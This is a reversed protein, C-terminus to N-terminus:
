VVHSLCIKMLVSKGTHRKGIIFIIRSEKVDPHKRVRIASMGSLTTRINQAIRHAVITEVDERRWVLSLTPWMGCRVTTENECGRQDNHIGTLVISPLTKQVRPTGADM